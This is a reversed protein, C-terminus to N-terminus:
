MEEYPVDCGGSTFQEMEEQNFVFCRCTKARSTDHKDSRPIQLYKYLRCVRELGNYSIVYNKCLICNPIHFKEYGLYKAYEYINCAVLTYFCAEYLSFPSSKQISKCNCIDRFCRSKGSKYLIYRLFEIEISMESNDYRINQFGYFQTKSIAPQSYVDKSPVEEVLGYTVIKNIDEENEIICEVVKKGSHLKEKDSAHTVCFEIYIPERDEKTSSFLKLDSRRCIGDYPVEPECSDYYDKLNFRLRSATFCNDFGYIDRYKCQRKETCYSRCEFDLPFEKAHIFAYQVKKKALLHLMSEYALNCETGSKHAFHHTRIQGKNKAILQEKCAPCICLCDYGTKVDDIYVLNGNDDIAYTLMHSEHKQQMKNM